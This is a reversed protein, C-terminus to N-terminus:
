ALQRLPDPPNISDFLGCTSILQAISAFQAQDSQNVECISSLLMALEHHLVSQNSPVNADKLYLERYRRTERELLRKLEIHDTIPDGSFRPQDDEYTLPLTMEELLDNMITSIGDIQLRYAERETLHLYFVLFCLVVPWWRKDTKENGDKIDLAQGFLLEASYHAAGYVGWALSFLPPPNQEEPERKLKDFFGM